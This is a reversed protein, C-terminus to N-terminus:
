LDVIYIRNHNKDVIKYNYRNMHATWSRWTRRSDTDLDSLSNDDVLLGILQVEEIMSGSNTEFVCQLVEDIQDIIQSLYEEDSMGIRLGLQQLTMVNISGGFDNDIDM